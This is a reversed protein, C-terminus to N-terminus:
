LMMKKFGGNEKEQSYNIGSSGLDGRQTGKEKKHTSKLLHRNWIFIIFVGSIHNFINHHLINLEMARSTYIFLFFVQFGFLDNFVLQNADDAFVVQINETLM